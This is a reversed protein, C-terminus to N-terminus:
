SSVSVNTAASLEGVQELSGQAQNLRRAALFLPEVVSAGLQGLPEIDDFSFIRNGQSDCATAIVLRERIESQRIELRANQAEKSLSEWPHQPDDTMAQDFETKARASMECVYVHFPKRSGDKQHVFVTVLEFAPGASEPGFVAQRSLFPIAAPQPAATQQPQPDPAEPM